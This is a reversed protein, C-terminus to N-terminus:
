PIETASYVPISEGSVSYLVTKPDDRKAVFVEIEAGGLLSYDGDSDYSEGWKRAAEEADVAYVTEADERGYFPDNHWVDWRPPRSHIADFSSLM